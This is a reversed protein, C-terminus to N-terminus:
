ERIRQVSRIVENASKAAFIMQRYIMDLMQAKENASMFTSAQIKMAFEGNKRLADATKELGALSIEMKTFLHISEEFKGQKKLLNITKVKEAVKIYTNWFKSIHSSGMDPNRAVFAKIVPMSSLNKVWNDSKPDIPPVVIGSKELSLDILKIAYMGLGATWGRIWNDIQIPSGLQGATLTSILKGLLKATESTWQTFQYEPLVDKLYNPVLPRKTFWTRNSYADLMPKFIDPMPIAAWGISKGFDALFDTLIEPDDEYITDLIKEVMSGFVYALGHAKPLSVTWENTEGENVVFNWFMFKRWEPLQKYAESDKNHLWLLVTPVTIYKAIRYSTQWPREKMGEFFRLNGQLMANYFAAVANLTNIALGMKRFDITLNRGEFGMRHSIERDTLREKPPLKKNEELLREYTLKADGLRVSIEGYESTVRLYDLWHSPNMQNILKRNKLQDIMKGERFYKQDMSVLHSQMAGSKMFKKFMESGRRLEAPNKRGFMFLGRLSELGIVINPNKSLITGTFADRFINKTMFEPVLTAGARLWRSPFGLYKKIWAVAVANSGSLAQQTSEPMEWITRKGDRYIAIQNKSLVQGNARFITFSEAVDATIGKMDILINKLNEKTLTIPKVKPKVIQYDPFPDNQKNKKAIDKAELVMNEWLKYAENREALQVFRLTNLFTTEIPDSIPSKDGILRKLPNKVVKSFQQNYNKEELVKGWPVYDKNLEIIRALQAEDILGVDKLMRALRHNYEVFEKGFQGYEAELEKVVSKSEELNFGTDKEIIKDAAVREPSTKLEINRKHILYLNFKIYEELPKRDKQKVKEAKIESELKIAKEKLSTIKNILETKSKYKKWVSKKDKFVDLQQIESYLARKERELLSIKRGWEVADMWIKDLGLGNEKDKLLDLTNYKIFYMAKGIMGHQNRIETYPTPQNKKFKFGAKVAKQVDRYIPYVQDLYYTVLFDKWSLEKPKKLKGWRMNKAAKKLLDSGTTLLTRDFSTSEYPKADLEELRAEIAEIRKQKDYEAIKKDVIDEKGIVEPKFEKISTEVKDLEKELASFRTQFAKKPWNSKSEIMTEMNMSIEQRQEELKKLDPKIEKEIPKKILDTDFTKSHEIAEQSKFDKVEIDWKGTTIQIEKGLDGVKTIRYNDQIAQKSFKAYQIGFKAEHKKFSKITSLKKVYKDFIEKTVKVIIERNGIVQGGEKNAYYQYKHEAISELREAEPSIKIKPVEKEIPKEVKTLAELKSKVEELRVDLTIWDEISLEKPDKTKDEELRTLEKKLEQIRRDVKVKAEDKFEKKVPEKEVPKVEVIEKKLTALEEKLEKIKVDDFQKDNRFNKINTSVADEKMEVDTLLDKNNDNLDKKNKVTRKTVMSGAKEGLGLTTLLLTNQILTNKTPMEWEVLSPVATLSLFRAVFKNVVNKSLATYPAVNQKIKGLKGYKLYPLFQPSAVMTGITLGSKIGEWVGHKLFIDWWEAFNQVEGRDLAEIYMAKISDNVFGAGFGAGFLNGGSLSGGALSGALFTPADAGISVLTEFFREIHGTDAPEPRMANEYSYNLNDPTIKGLFPLDNWDKKSGSNYQTIININSKGVAREFYKGWEADKGVAWEKAAEVDKQQVVPYVGTAMGMAKGITSWYSKMPRTVNDDTASNNIGFAENIMLESAGSDKMELMKESKFDDILSQPANSEKMQEITALISSM